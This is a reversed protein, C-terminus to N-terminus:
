VILSNVLIYTSSVLHNTSFVYDYCHDVNESKIAKGLYHLEFNPRVSKYDLSNSKTCQVNEETECTEEQRRGAHKRDKRKPKSHGRMGNQNEWQSSKNIQDTIKM